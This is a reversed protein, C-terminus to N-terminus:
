PGFPRIRRPIKALIALIQFTEGVGTAPNRVEWRVNPPATPMTGGLVDFSDFREPDLVGALTFERWRIDTASVNGQPDLKLAPSGTLNGTGVLALQMLCFSFNPDPDHLSRDVAATSQPLLIDVYEYTVQAWGDDVIAVPSVLEDLELEIAGVLNYLERLAVTADPNQIPIPM